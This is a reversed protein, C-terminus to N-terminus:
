SAQRVWVTSFLHNLHVGCIVAFVLVGFFTNCRPHGAQMTKSEGRGQERKRRNMSEKEKAKGSDCRQTEARREWDQMPATEGAPGATGHPSPRVVTIVRPQTLALHKSLPAVCRFPRGRIKPKHARVPGGRWVCPLPLCFLIPSCDLADLWCMPDRGSSLYPSSHHANSTTVRRISPFVSLKTCWRLLFPM